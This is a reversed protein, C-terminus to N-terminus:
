GVLTANSIYFSIRVLCTSMAIELMHHQKQQIKLDVKLRQIAFYKGRRLFIILKGVQFNEDLYETRLAKQEM